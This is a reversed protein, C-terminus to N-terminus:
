YGLYDLIINLELGSMNGNEVASYLDQLQPETLGQGAVGTLKESAAGAYVLDVLTKEAYKGLNKTVDYDYITKIINRNYGNNYLVTLVDDEFIEKEAFKEAKALTLEPSASGTIKNDTEQPESKYYNAIQARQLAESLESARKEAALNEEYATTDFGLARYGSLDGLSARLAADDVAKKYAQDSEYLATDVGLARYGSLDGLTARQAAENWTWQKQVEADNKEDRYVGYNFTEDARRLNQENIFKNYNDAELTLLTALDARENEKEQLHKQYANERLTIVKDSLDDMHDNYTQQAVQGAYSSAIGGTRSSVKGLTDDMALKAGKTYAKELEKYAPDTEPNYSFEEQSLISDKLADINKQYASEYKPTEVKGFSDPTGVSIPIYQSGDKGGSYGYKARTEEWLSHASDWDTEGAMARNKVDALLKKDEESMYKEDYISFLKNNAM